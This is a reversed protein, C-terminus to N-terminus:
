ERRAKKKRRHEPEGDAASRKQGKSMTKLETRMARYLQHNFGVCQLFLYEVDQTGGEFAKRAIEMHEVIERRPVYGEVAAKCLDDRLQSNFSGSTLTIRTGILFQYSDGTVFVAHIRVSKTAWIAQVYLHGCLSGGNARETLCFIASRPYNRHTTAAEQVGATTRQPRCTHPCQTFFFHMSIRNRAGSCDRDVFCSRAQM